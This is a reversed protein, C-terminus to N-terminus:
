ASYLFLQGRIVWTRPGYACLLLLWLMLLVLLFLPITGCDVADSVVSGVVEVEDSMGSKVSNVDEVKDSNDEEVAGFLYVPLTYGFVVVAIIKFTHIWWCVQNVM